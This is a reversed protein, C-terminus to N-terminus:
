QQCLAAHKDCLAIPTRTLKCEAQLGSSMVHTGTSVRSDHSTPTIIPHAQFAQRSDHTCNTAPM